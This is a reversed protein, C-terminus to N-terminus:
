SECTRHLSLSRVAPICITLAAMLSGMFRKSFVYHLASGIHMTRLLVEMWMSFKEVNDELNPYFGAEVSTASKLFLVGMVDQGLGVSNGSSRSM